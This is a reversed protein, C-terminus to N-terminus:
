MLSAVYRWDVRRKHEVLRVSLFLVDHYEPIVCGVLEDRASQCVSRGTCDKSSGRFMVRFAFVFLIERDRRIREFAESICNSGKLGAQNFVTAVIGTSLRHLARVFCSSSLQDRFADM